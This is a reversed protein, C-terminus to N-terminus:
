LNTHKMLQTTEEKTLLLKSIEQTMKKRMVETNRKNGAKLYQSNSLHFIIYQFLIDNTLLLLPKKPSPLM